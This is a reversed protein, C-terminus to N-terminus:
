SRRRGKRTANRSVGPESSSAEARLPLVADDGISQHCFPCERQALYAEHFHRNAQDFRELRQRGDDKLGQDRKNTRIFQIVYSDFFKNVNETAWLLMAGAGPTPASAALKRAAAETKAASLNCYVWVVDDESPATNQEDPM